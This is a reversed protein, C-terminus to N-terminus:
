LSIVIDDGEIRVDFFPLKVDPDEDCRGTSLDFSWGHWPCSVKFGCVSGDFLPGGAHPCVGTTAIVQGDVWFLAILEEGVLADLSKRARLDALSGVKHLTMDSSADFGLL